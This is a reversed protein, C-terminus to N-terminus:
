GADSADSVERSRVFYNEYGGSRLRQVVAGRLRLLYRDWEGATIAEIAAFAAAASVLRGAEPRHYDPVHGDPARLHAIPDNEAAM